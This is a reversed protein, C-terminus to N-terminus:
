PVIITSSPHKGVEPLSAKHILLKVYSCWYQIPSVKDPNITRYKPLHWKNKDRDLTKLVLNKFFSEWSDPQVKTKKFLQNKCDALNRFKTKANAFDNITNTFLQLSISFGYNFDACHEAEADSILAAADPTIEWLAPYTKSTGGHCPSQGMFHVKGEIFLGDKTFFSPISPLFSDTQKLIYRSGSKILDIAPYKVLTTDLRTLGFENQSTNPKALFNKRDLGVPSCNSASASTSGASQQEEESAVDTVKPDDKPSRFIVENHTHSKIHALEHALLKNGEKTGPKYKGENFVIHNKYTYANANLEEASRVANVGTHIKINQFSLDFRPEFFKKTEASLSHGASTVAPDITKKIPDSNQVVPTFFPNSKQTLLKKSVSNEKQKKHKFSKAKM